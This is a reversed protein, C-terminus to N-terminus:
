LRTFAHLSACKKYSAEFFHMWNKFSYWLFINMVLWITVNWHFVSTIYNNCHFAWQICYKCANHIKKSNMNRYTLLYVNEDEVLGSTVLYFSSVIKFCIELLLPKCGSPGSSCVVESPNITYISLIVNSRCNKQWMLFYPFVFVKHQAKFSWLNSIWTKWMTSLQEVSV